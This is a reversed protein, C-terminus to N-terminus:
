YFDFGGENRRIPNKIFGTKKHGPPASGTICPSSGLKLPLPFFRTGGKEPGIAYQLTARFKRDIFNKEFIEERWDYGNM